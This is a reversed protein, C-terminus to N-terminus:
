PSCRWPKKQPYTANFYTLLEADTTASCLLRTMVWEISPALLSIMCPFMNSNASITLSSGFYPPRLVLPRRPAKASGSNHQLTIAFHISQTERIDFNSTLVDHHAVTEALELDSNSIDGTPNDFSVLRQRIHDPFIQGWLVAQIDAATPGTTGIVSPDQSLLEAIRIPRQPLEM